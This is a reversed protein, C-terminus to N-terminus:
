DNREKMMAEIEAWTYEEKLGLRAALPAPVCINWDPYESRTTATVKAYIGLIDALVKDSLGATHSQGLDTM